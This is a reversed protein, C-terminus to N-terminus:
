SSSLEAKKLKQAVRLKEKEAELLPQLDRAPLPQSVLFGQIEDCKHQKMFSLQEETEVGEAVVKMSMSSAMSLIARAIASDETNYPIEQLFSRDIKLIDMSFKKLYSLSSYGTGFDDLSIAIGMSSLQDLITASDKVNAMVTSETIELNLYKAPLGTEELITQVLSLLNQNQFQIASLNVAVPAFLFGQELWTKTQECATRLVWEGISVILGTEEALPIFEAPSILGKEPHKWRVLAETGSIRGTQVNIKPQYHLVFENNDLAKRLCHELELRKQIQENMSNTFMSFNNKGHKKAKYMAMDANKVLTEVDVGDDPYITIGISASCYIKHENVQIMGSISETIRRAVEIPDQQGRIDELILIFEDGGLRAVTDNDRCCTNLRQAVVQLLMDGVGHGLTDNIDKFNDLDLFLVSLMQSNRRATAISKKLRDYFLARNPLGTLTDHFAQYELQYASNKLETIDQFVAVYYYTKEKRNKILVISLLVPCVEGTSRKLKIEGKWKDVKKLSKTIRAFLFEQHLDSNIFTFEKGLVQEPKYATIETFGPNVKLFRGKKDIIAIGEATNDFTSAMLLLQEEYKKRETIDQGYIYLSDTDGFMSIMFSYLLDGIRLDLFKTKQTLYCKRLSFQWDTPLTEKVACGWFKMLPEAAHNAYLIKGKHDVRFVPNPNEAPFQALIEFRKREREQKRAKKKLCKNEAILEVLDKSFLDELTKLKGDLRKLFKEKKNVKYCVTLFGNVNGNESTLPLRHLKLEFEKGNSNKISFQTYDVEPDVNKYHQFFEEEILQDAETVGFDGLVKGPLNYGKLKLMKNVAKNGWFIKGTLDCELVGCPLDYIMVQFLPEQEDKVAEASIGRSNISLGSSKKEFRECQLRLKKLRRAFDKITRQSSEM